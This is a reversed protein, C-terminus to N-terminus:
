PKSNSPNRSRADHVIAAEEPSLKAPPQVWLFAPEIHPHRWFKEENFPLPYKPATPIDRYLRVLAEAACKLIQPLNLVIINAKEHDSNERAYVIEDLILILSAWLHASNKYRRTSDQLTKTTSSHAKQESSNTAIEIQSAALARAGTICAPINSAHIRLLSLFIRGVSAGHECNTKNILTNQLKGHGTVIKIIEKPIIASDSKYKYPNLSENLIEHALYLKRLKEDKTRPFLM